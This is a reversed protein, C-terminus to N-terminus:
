LLQSHVMTSGRSVCRSEPGPDLTVMAGQHAEELVVLGCSRGPLPVPQTLPDEGCEMEVCLSLLVM